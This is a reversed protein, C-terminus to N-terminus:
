QKHLEPHTRDTNLHGVVYIPALVMLCISAAAITDKAIEVLDSKSIV